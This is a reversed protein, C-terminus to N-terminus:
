RFKKSYLNVTNYGSDPIVVGGSVRLAFQFKGFSTSITDAHISNNGGASYSRGDGAYIEVHHNGGEVYVVLIDGPQLTTSNVPTIKQWGYKECLEDAKNKFDISRWQKDFESFGMKYLVWSVYASCDIIPEENGSGLNTIDYHPGYYFEKGNIKTTRIYDHCQKAIQLLATGDLTTTAESPYIYDSVVVPSNVQDKMVMELNKGNITTGLPEGAELKDNEEIEEDIKINYVYLVMGNVENDDMREQVTVIEYRNLTSNWVREQVDEIKKVDVFKLALWDNGKQEVICNGPAILAQEGSFGEEFVDTEEPGEGPVEELTPPPTEEQPTEEPTTSEEISKVIYAFPRNSLTSRDGELVPIEQASPWDYQPIYNKFIWLLSNNKETSSIDESEEEEVEFQLDNFLEKLDKLAHAADESHTNELIAMASLSSKTPAINEKIQSRGSGNFIYYKAKEKYIQSLKPILEASVEDDGAIEKLEEKYEEVINKDVFGLLEKVTKSNDIVIPEAVQKIGYPITVSIYYNPAYLESPLLRDYGTSEGTQENEETMYLKLEQKLSADREYATFGSTTGGYSGGRGYVPNGYIDYHGEGIERRMEETVRTTYGFADSKSSPFCYFTWGKNISENKGYLRVTKGQAVAENIKDRPLPKAYTTTREGDITIYFIDGYYDHERIIQNALTMSCNPIEPHVSDFHELQGDNVSFVGANLDSAARYWGGYRIYEYLSSGHKTNRGYIDYLNCMQSLEAAYAGISSSYERRAIRAIVRLEEDTLDFKNFEPLTYEITVGPEATARGVAGMILNYVKASAEDKYHIGDPEVEFSDLQNIITSFTDIYGVGNLHEKINNNFKYIKDNDLGWSNSKVPNVTVYNVTVGKESWENAKNNLYNAYNETNTDTLGNIGLFIFVKSGNTIKNEGELLGYQKPYLILVGVEKLM